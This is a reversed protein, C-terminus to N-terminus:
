LVNKELFIPLLRQLAASFRKGAMAKDYITIEGKELQEMTLDEMAIAESPEAVVACLVTCASLLGFSARRDMDEQLADTTIAKDGHGLATLTERLQDVYTDLLARWHQERVDAQVSTYLFYQLDLSPPAYRMIQYDIFRMEELKGTEVSYRFLNNNVWCDGHNLVNLFTKSATVCEIVQDIVTKAFNRVREVCGAFKPDEWSGVAKAVGEFMPPIFQEIEERKNPDYFAEGYSEVEEPNQEHLAVSAAHFRALNRLVMTAHELDMGVYRDCMRFGQEKLDKLVITFERECPLSRPAFVVKESTKENLIAELAPITSTYMKRERPFIGSEMVFQQMVDGAPLTKVILSTTKPSEEPADQLDYDVGVRLLLSAYNDGKGVARAVKVKHVTVPRGEERALIGAVFEHDVWDPLADSTDNTGNPIDNTTAM